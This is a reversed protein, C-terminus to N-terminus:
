LDSVTYTRGLYRHAYPNFETVFRSRLQNHAHDPARARPTEGKAMLQNFLLSDATMARFTRTAARLQPTAHFADLRELVVARNHAAATYRQQAHSLRKGAIFLQVIGNLTGVQQKLSPTTAGNRAQRHDPAPSNGTALVGAIVGAAVLLAGAAAIVTRRRPIRRRASSDTRQPGSAGPPKPSSPEPVLPGVRHRQPPNVPAEALGSTATAADAPSTAWETIGSADAPAATRQADNRQERLLQLGVAKNLAEALAGATPFRDAPAKATARAVVSDFVPLLGARCACPSPPPDSLHAWMTAIPSEREYPPRGTLMEHVVCGLSYVDTRADVVLGRFQEPAAYDTTGVWQDSRTLAATSAGLRKTIGFDALYVHEDGERGSLLINAPKVDRHVLGHSHAADLATAVQGVVREIWSVGLSRHVRLYAWLDTGPVFQMALFLVGEWEGARYITVLHPHDVAAALKAESTFRAAAAADEIHEPAIVKLAVTRELASDTARYVMGM